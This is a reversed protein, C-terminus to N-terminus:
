PGEMSGRVVRRPPIETWPSSLLDLESVSLELQSQPDTIGSERACWRSFAILRMSRTEEKELNAMGGIWREWRIGGMRLRLSTLDIAGPKDNVTAELAVTYMRSKMLKAFTPYCAFPWGQTEAKAGAASVALLVFASVAVTQIPIARAALESGSEVAARMRPIFRRALAGWDIFIVYCVLLPHFLINLLYWNVLHFAVGAVVALIRTRPRFLAFLFALEFLVVAGGGVKLLLPFEIIWQGRAMDQLAHYRLVLNTLNDGAIWDVGSTWLKWFGPFFYALGILIEAVRIPFGYVTSRNSIGVLRERSRSRILADVSMADGCPSVALVMLFWILHNYHGVKGICQPVGLVYMALFAAIVACTRSCLGLMGLGCVIILTWGAYRVTEPELPVLSVLWGMGWPADMLESPIGALWVAYDLNTKQLVLAFVFIRFVALNAPAMPTLLFDRVTRLLRRPTRFTLVALTVVVAFLLIRSAALM